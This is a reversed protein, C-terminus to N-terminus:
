RALPLAEGERDLRDLALSQSRLAAIWHVGDDCVSALAAPMWPWARVGVPLRLLSRLRLAADPQDEEDAGIPELTSSLDPVLMASAVVVRGDRPGRVVWRIEIGQRASVDSAADRMGLRNAICSRM